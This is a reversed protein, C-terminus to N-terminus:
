SITSVTFPIPNENSNTHGHTLQAMSGEADFLSYKISGGKGAVHHCSAKRMILLLILM